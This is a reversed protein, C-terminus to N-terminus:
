SLFTQCYLLGKIILWIDSGLSWKEVSICSGWLVADMAPERSVQHSPLTGELSHARYESFCKAQLSARGDLVLASRVRVQKLTQIATWSAAEDQRATWSAAWWGQLLPCCVCAHTSKLAVVVPLIYFRLKCYPQKADGGWRRQVWGVELASPLARMMLDQFAWLSGAGDVRGTQCLVWASSQCCVALASFSRNFCVACPCPSLLPSCSCYSEANWAGCAQM